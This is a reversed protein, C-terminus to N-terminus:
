NTIVMFPLFCYCFNCLTSAFVLYSKVGNDSKLAFKVLYFKLNHVKQIQLTHIEVLIEMEVRNLWVQMAWMGLMGSVAVLMARLWM